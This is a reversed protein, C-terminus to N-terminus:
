EDLGVGELHRQDLAGPPARYVKVYVYSMTITASLARQVLMAVAAGLGGFKPILLFAGSATVALAVCEVLTEVHPRNVSYLVTSSPLMALSFLVSAFIISFIPASAVYDPALWAILPRAVFSVAILAPVLLLVARYSKRLLDKLENQKV